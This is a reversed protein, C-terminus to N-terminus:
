QIPNPRHQLLLPHFLYKISTELNFRTGVSGRPFAYTRIYNLLAFFVLFHKDKPRYIAHNHLTTPATVTADM